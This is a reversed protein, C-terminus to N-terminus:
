VNTNHPGCMNLILSSAYSKSAWRWKSAVRTCDMTKQMLLNPLPEEALKPQAKEKALEPSLDKLFWPHNRIDPIRARKFPDVVLIRGILGKTIHCGVPVNTSAFHRGTGHM